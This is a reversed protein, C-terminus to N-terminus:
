KLLLMKKTEIYNGAQLKYFYIGSSLDDAHWLVQHYGAPQQRDTLSAVKRGLIDYIDITFSAFEDDTRSHSATVMEVFNYDNYHEAEGNIYEFLTKPDYMEPELDWQWGDANDPQSMLSMVNQGPQSIATNLLCCIALVQICM